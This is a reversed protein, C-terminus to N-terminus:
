KPVLNTLLQSCTGADYASGLLTKRIARRDVIVQLTDNDVVVHKTVEKRIRSHGLEFYRESQREWCCWSMM